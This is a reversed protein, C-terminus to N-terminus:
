RGAEALRRYGGEYFVLPETGQLEGLAVVEGVFISHDGGDHVGSLRCDMWAMGGELVPAGSVAAPRWSIGEFQAHGEARDSSAFHVSLEEQQAALVTVAFAGARPLLAHTTAERDICVLILLPDLSLSAFANVTIGHVTGDVATTVVAVGTAFRGALARFREPTVDDGM